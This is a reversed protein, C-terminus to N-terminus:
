VELDLDELDYVEGEYYVDLTDPDIAAGILVLIYELDINRNTLVDAVTRGTSREIVKM